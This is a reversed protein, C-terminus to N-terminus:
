LKNKSELYKQDKGSKKYKIWAKKKARRRKTVKKTVWKCKNTSKSSRLPIFKDRLEILDSKLRDWLKNVSSENKEFVKDWNLSNAQERIGEYDAKFYNYAKMNTKPAQKRTLLSFRIIQHHSTQFPEGVRLNDVLSTDSCLILDLFNEGRTPKEVVQTLFNNGICEIFPHSEDLTEKNEWNLNQFNFDGLVVINQEKDCVKNLLDYFAEDSEKLSDPPRYCVGVVTSEGGCTIQCWASEPFKYDYFEDRRV